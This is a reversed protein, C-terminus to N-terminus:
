PRGLRVHKLIGRFLRDGTLNDGDDTAKTDLTLSWGAGKGDVYYLARKRHYAADDGESNLRYTMALESATRGHLSSPVLTADESNYARGDGFIRDLDRHAVDLANVGYQGPERVVTVDYGPASSNEYHVQGKKKGPRAEYGGPLAVSADLGRTRLRKWGGPLKAAGSRAATSRSDGGGGTGGSSGDLPSPLLWLGAATVLGAVAVVAWKLTRRRGASGTAVSGEGHEGTAPSGEGTEGTTAPFSRTPRELVRRLEAAAEEVTPRASPDKNLLMNIVPALEGAQSPESPTAGVVAHLTAAPTQRRFPAYGEVAAYLLVGLSFLDSKPGPRRGLVREPAIYGPSGVFVGTETLPAEGEIQAVGFDALVVRDYPGLIVNAPKVDRHLVGSAHAAGLASLVPLAIRAAEQPPLTGDDLAQELSQGRVLEMVIWPRSKELVVDHIEVVNPHDIRAAARAERYMRAFAAERQRGTLSEPVRPEKVAVERDVKTDHARWVTGMGGSGLRGVLRYRDGILRGGGSGASGGGEGSRAHGAQGPVGGERAMTGQGRDAPRTERPEGPVNEASEM